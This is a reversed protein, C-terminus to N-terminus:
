ETFLILNAITDKPSSFDSYRLGTWAGVFFLDRVRDLKKSSIQVIYIKDLESETLYIQETEKESYSFKKHRFIMNNTYGFDVAEGM